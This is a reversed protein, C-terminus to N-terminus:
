PRGVFVPACSSPEVVQTQVDFFSYLMYYTFLIMDYKIDYIYIFLYIYIYIYM